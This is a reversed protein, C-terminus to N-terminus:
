RNLLYAADTIYSSVDAEQSITAYIETERIRIFEKGDINVPDGRQKNVIVINRRKVETPILKGKRSIKGPGVAVVLGTIIQTPTATEPIYLGSRYTQKTPEYYILVQDELLQITDINM